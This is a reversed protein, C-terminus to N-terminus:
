KVMLGVDVFADSAEEVCTCISEYTPTLLLDMCNRIKKQFDPDNEYRERVEYFIEYLYASVEGVKVGLKFQDVDTGPFPISARELGRFIDADAGHRRSRGSDFTARILYEYKLARM